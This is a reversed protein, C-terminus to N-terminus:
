CYSRKFLYIKLSTKFSNLSPSTRISAPLTTWTEVPAFYFARRGFETLSPPAILDGAEASRLRRRAAVSSVPECMAAIYDPALNVKLMADAHMELAVQICREREETFSHL